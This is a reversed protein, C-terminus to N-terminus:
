DEYIQVVLSGGNNIVSITQNIIKRDMAIM